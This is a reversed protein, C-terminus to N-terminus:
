RHERVYNLLFRLAERERPGGTREVVAQTREMERAMRAPSILSLRSAHVSAELLACAARNIGAFPSLSGERIIRCQVRARDTSSDVSAVEVEWYGPVDAVIMGSVMQAPQGAVPPDGLATYVYLAGDTSFNLVGGGSAVLNEYTHTSQYPCLVPNGVAGAPYWVGMPAANHRGKRDVTSVIAEYVM